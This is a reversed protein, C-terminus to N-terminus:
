SRSRTPWWQLAEVQRALGHQRLPPMSPWCTPKSPSRPSSKSSTASKLAVPGWNPLSRIPRIPTQVALAAVLAAEGASKAIEKINVSMEESGTAVTKIHQSVEESASSVTSAQAATEEANNAMQQSVASLAESSTGLTEADQAIAGIVERMGDVAQNFNRSLVDHESRPDVRITIDGQGLSQMAEAIGQIYAILSRFAEALQGIENTQRIAIEDKSRYVVTQNIDGGAIKAAVKAMNQIPQTITTAIFLSGIVFMIVSLGGIGVLWAQVQRWAQEGHERMVQQVQVIHAEPMGACLLGINEKSSATLTSCTTLYSAGALPLTMNVPKSSGYVQAQVEPNVQLSAVEMEDDQGFGAYAIPTTHLYLVFASHTAAYLQRLPEHYKNLLKGLVSVGIPDGFDDYIIGASAISIAGKGAMDWDALGHATLFPVDHQTLAEWHSIEKGAERALFDQAQKGLEWTQYHAVVEPTDVDQPFSAQLNGELDFLLAFDMGTMKVAAAVTRQLHTWQGRELNTMITPNQYLSNANSRHIEATINHLRSAFVQRHGGLTKYTEATMDQALRHSQQAMSAAMKWSVVGGLVTTMILAALSFSFTIKSKISKM